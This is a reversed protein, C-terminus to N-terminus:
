IGLVAQKKHKRLYKILKFDEKLDKEEGYIEFAFAYNSDTVDYAYDLSTGPALYGITAGVPGHECHCYKENM